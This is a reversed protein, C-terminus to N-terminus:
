QCYNRSKSLSSSFLLRDRLLHGNRRSKFCLIGSLQHTGGRIRSGLNWCMRATLKIKHFSNRIVQCSILWGSNCIQRSHESMPQLVYSHDESILAVCSGKYANWRTSVHERCIQSSIYFPKQFSFCIASTLLIYTFSILTSLGINCPLRHNTQIFYSQM